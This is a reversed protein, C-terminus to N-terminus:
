REHQDGRALFGLVPFLVLVAVATAVLSFSAGFSGAGWGLFDSVLYYLAGVGGGAMVAGVGPVRGRWGEHWGFFGGLVLAPLLALYPIGYLSAVANPTIQGAYGGLATFFGTDSGVVQFASLLVMAVGAALPPGVVAFVAVVQALRIMPRDPLRLSPPAVPAGSSSFSPDFSM